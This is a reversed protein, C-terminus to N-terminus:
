PTAEPFFDEDLVEKITWPCAEPFIALPLRTEASALRRATPYEAHLLSERRRHLSPSRTLIRDIERRANIITSAWSRGTQRRQPQYYWKLLHMVLRRLQSELAHEQSIGLSEIEEVVNAIDVDHFAGERLLAAQEQTWTYFDTDYLTHM